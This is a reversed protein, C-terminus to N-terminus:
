NYNKKLAEVVEEPTNYVGECYLLVASQLEANLEYDYPTISGSVDIQEAVKCLVEFHNQGGLVGLRPSRASKRNAAEINAPLYYDKFEYFKYDSAFYMKAGKSNTTFFSIFEKALDTNDCRNAVTMLEDDWYFPQPGVVVNWKGYTAGGEGGAAQTLISDGFGWSPVFYGMTTDTRGAAYWDASWQGLNKIIYGNDYMQKVLSIYDYTADDIVLKNDVIWPNKRVSTYAQWIGNATTTFATRGGSAERVQAATKVFKDWDSVLAQMEDTTKVGLYKKALDTRYCFGGVASQWALGKQVGSTSKGLEVTYNYLVDYDQESFGINSLPMTGTEASDDNFYKHAWGAEVLMIDVDNYPDSLYNDYNEAAVDGGYGFCKVAFEEATHDTNACFTKIMPDIDDTNWCLISLKTDPVSVAEKESVGGINPVAFTELLMGLQSGAQLGILVPGAVASDVGFAQAIFNITRDELIDNVLMSSSLDTISGITSNLLQNVAKGEYNEYYQLSYVIAHKLDAIEWANGKYKSAVAYMDLLIQRYTEDMNIYAKAAVINEMKGLYDAMTSVFEMGDEAVSVVDNYVTLGKLDIEINEMSKNYRIEFDEMDEYLRLIATEPNIYQMKDYKRYIEDFEISIKELEESGVMSNTIKQTGIAAKVGKLYEDFSEIVADNWIDNSIGSNEVANFIELMIVNYDNATIKDAIDGIEFKVVDVTLEVGSWVGNAVELPKNEEMKQKAQSTFNFKTWHKRRASLIHQNIYDIDKIEQYTLEEDITASTNESFVTYYVMDTYVNKIVSPITIEYNSNDSETWGLFERVIGIEYDCSKPIEGKYQPITGKPINEEKLLTKGNYWKINCTETQFLAYYTIDGYEGKYTESQPIYDSRNIGWGIFKSYGDSSKPVGYTNTDYKATEGVNLTNTCIVEGDEGIYTATYNETNSSSDVAAYNFYVVAEKLIMKDFHTADAAESKYNYGITIYTIYEVSTTLDEYIYMNDEMEDAIINDTHFAGNSKEVAKTVTDGIYVGPMVQGNEYIYVGSIKENKNEAWVYFNLHKIFLVEPYMDDLMDAIDNNEIHDTYNEVGYFLIIDNISMGYFDYPYKPKWVDSSIDSARLLELDVYWKAGLGSVEGTSKDVTVDAWWTNASPLFGMLEVYEEIEEESRSYRLTLRIYDGRDVCEDEFCIIEGSYIDINAYDVVQERIYELTEENWVIDSNDAAVVFGVNCIPFCNIVMIFVIIISMVRKIM